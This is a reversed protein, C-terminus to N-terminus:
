IIKIINILFINENKTKFIKEQHKIKIFNELKMDNLRILLVIIVM